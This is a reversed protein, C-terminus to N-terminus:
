KESLLRGVSLYKKVKVMQLEAPHTGSSVTRENL